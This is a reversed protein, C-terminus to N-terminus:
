ELEGLSKVSFGSAQPHGGGGPFMSAIKSVDAGDKDSRLSVVFEEGDYHYGASFHEGVALEGLLESRFFPTNIIPVEYGKIKARYTNERIRNILTKNYRLIAAGESLLKAFGEPTEIFDNIKDWILFTKEYSDIATLLERAYPLLCGQPGRLDRDEIYQILKPVEEGPFCYGWALAAGSHGMDFHAFELGDLDDMASVHHDLIIFESAMEHAKVADERELAIDVMWIKRDKFVNSDLGKFPAKEHSLPIYEIDAGYRKWFSFAAGFGDPCGGHFILAPKLTPKM